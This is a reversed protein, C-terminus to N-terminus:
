NQAKGATRRASGTYPCAGDLMGARHQAAWPISRPLRGTSGINEALPYRLKLPKLFNPRPGAVANAFRSTPYLLVSVLYIEM